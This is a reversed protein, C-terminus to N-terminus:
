SYTIGEDDSHKSSILPQLPTPSLSPLYGADSASDKKEPMADKNSAQTGADPQVEMKAAPIEVDTEGQMMFEPIVELPLLM